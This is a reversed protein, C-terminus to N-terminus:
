EKGVRREESRRGIQVLCVFYGIQYFVAPGHIEFDQRGIDVARVVTEHDLVAGYAIAQARELAHALAGYFIQHGNTFLDTREGAKTLQTAFCVQRAEVAPGKLRQNAGSAKVTQM